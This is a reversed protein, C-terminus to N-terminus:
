ASAVVPEEIKVLELEFILLKGAFPSNADLQVETETMEVVMAVSQNALEVLMDKKLGGQSKYRGELRQVEPHDTPVSFLLKHDWEGGNVQLYEKAGVTLGRVASDFAQFMENGVVDGAGVEFVMPDKERSTEIIQNGDLVSYHVSVVDGEKAVRDADTSFSGCAVSLAAQSRRATWAHRAPKHYTAARRPPIAMAASCAQVLFANGPLTVAAM